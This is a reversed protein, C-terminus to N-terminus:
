IQSGNPVEGWQETHSNLPACACERSRPPPPTTAREHMRVPPTARERMHMPPPPAVLLPPRPAGLFSIRGQLQTEIPVLLAM